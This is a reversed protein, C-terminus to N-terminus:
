SGLKRYLRLIFLMSSVEELMIETTACQCSTLDTTKLWGKETRLEVPSM